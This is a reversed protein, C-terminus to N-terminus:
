ELALQCNGCAIGTKTKETHYAKRVIILGEKNTQKRKNNNNNNQKNTQAHTRAHTRAHTHARAGAHM